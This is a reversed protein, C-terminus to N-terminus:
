RVALRTRLHRYFFLLRLPIGGFALRTLWGRWGSQHAYTIRDILTVGYDSPEFIHEHHWHALPGHAMRDTFSHEGPGPLHRAIWRIPVPGFWLTIELDGETLSQREDRHVQVFIPPPTLISLVNQQQHFARLQELTTHLETRKEYIKTRPMTNNADMNEFPQM